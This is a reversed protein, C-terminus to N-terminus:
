ALTDLFSLTHGLTKGLDKQATSPKTKGEPPFRAIEDLRHRDRAAIVMRKLTLFRQNKKKKGDVQRGAERGGQQHKKVSIKM